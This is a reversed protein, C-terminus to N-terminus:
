IRYIVFCAIQNKKSEIELKIKTIKSIASDEFDTCIGDGTIFIVELKRLSIGLEKYRMKIQRLMNIANTIAGIMSANGIAELKIEQRLCLLGMFQQLVQVENSYSMICIDTYEAFVSNKCHNRISNITNEVTIIRDGAMSEFTDIVNYERIQM